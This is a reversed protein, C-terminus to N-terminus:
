FFLIEKVVFYSGIEKLSVPKWLKLVLMAVRARADSVSGCEIGV